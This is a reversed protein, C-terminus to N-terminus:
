EGQIVELAKTLADESKVEIDPEVGVKDLRVGDYTYFDAIPLLLMFKKQVYFPFAALMGGYTKEGIVTAMKSNKLSYVIPECTSGTYGNTLVYLKGTFVPNEPKKFVLKVGPVICLEKGFAETSKPQVEPLTRFLEPQYGSYNLKNTLFYGVELDERVIYKALAFAPGVGGGGNDRLDIILHKYGKNAVIGPLVAELEEASATFNKIKLYVTSDNKVEFIVSKNAALPEESESESESQESVLLNLHTFPLKSTMLSFGFFVEIDDHAKGCLKTLKKEFKKWEKDQLVQKSYINEQVTSILERSLSVYNNKNESSVKGKLTGITAGDANLLEGSLTQNQVVGRFNLRGFMPMNTKGTLSDAKQVGTIRVIIGKKPLKRMMRGLRAKGGLMRIDANKPSTMTFQDKDKNLDLFTSIVTGGGFDIDTKFHMPNDQAFTTKFLSFLVFNLIMFKRTTNNHM